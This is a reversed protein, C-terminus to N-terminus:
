PVAETDLIADYLAIAEEFKKATILERVKNRVAEPAPSGLSALLTINQMVYKPIGTNVLATAQPEFNTFRLCGSDMWAPKAAAKCYVAYNLFRVLGGYQEAYRPLKTKSSSAGARFAVIRAGEIESYFQNVSTLYASNSISEETEKDIEIRRLRQERESAPFAIPLLPSSPISPIILSSRSPRSTM